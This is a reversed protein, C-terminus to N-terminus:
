TDLASSARFCIFVPRSFEDYRIPGIYRVGLCDCLSLNALAIKKRVLFNHTPYVYLIYRRNVVVSVRDPAFKFRKGSVITTLLDVSSGKMM